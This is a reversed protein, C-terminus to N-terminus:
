EEIAKATSILDRMAQESINGDKDFQDYDIIQYIGDVEDFAPSTNITNIFEERLEPDAPAISFTSYDIPDSPETGFAFTYGSDIQENLALEEENNAFFDDGFTIYQDSKSALFIGFAGFAVVMFAASIMHKRKEKMAIRMSNSSINPKNIDKKNSEPIDPENKNEVRFEIDEDNSM